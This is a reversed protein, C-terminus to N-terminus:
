TPNLRTLPDHILLEAVHVFYRPNRRTRPSARVRFRLCLLRSVDCLSQLATAICLRSPPQPQIPATNPETSPKCAHRPEASRWPAAPGRIPTKPLPDIARALVLLVRCTCACERCVASPLATAAPVPCTDRPVRATLCARRNTNRPGTPHICASIIIIHELQM